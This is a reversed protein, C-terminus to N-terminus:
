ANNVGISVCRPSAERTQASAHPEEERQLNSVRAGRVFEPREPATPRRAGSRWEKVLDPKRYKM